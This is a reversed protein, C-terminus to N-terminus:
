FSYCVKKTISFRTKKTVCEKKPVNSVEYLALIEECLCEIREKDMRTLQRRGSLVYKKKTKTAHKIEKKYPKRHDRTTKLNNRM